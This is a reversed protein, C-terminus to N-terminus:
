HQKARGAGVAVVDDDHDDDDDHHRQDRAFNVLDNFHPMLEGASFPTHGYRDVRRQILNPGSAVQGLLDEHFVPVVPDRATHLTMLPIRLRRSPEGWRQLFEAAGRSRTYRAVRNNIDTVLAAPLAPSTYQWGANDFFSESGARAFLDRGGQMQFGLVTVLSTVLEQGNNGALPHRALLQIIGLGQPNATVAQVVPGVVQANINTIAPPNYLDGALVGPYVTDFLVRIDAIYQVEETSGGVIGCVLFAGDYHEEAHRQALILGILGGLSQGFLYTHRAHGIRDHFIESLAASERVGERVAYGNRSFSSAAVAFGRAVLSDRIAENHPLAVPDTPFSYGHLYLVLDGNWDAPKDIEWLAGSSVRGELHVQRGDYRRHRDAEAARAVAPDTVSPAVASKKGCGAGTALLLALVGAWSARALSPHFSPHAHLRHQTFVLVEV